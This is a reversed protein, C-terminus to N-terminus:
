QKIRKPEYVHCTGTYLENLAAIYLLSDIQSDKIRGRLRLFSGSNPDKGDHTIHAALMQYGFLQHDPEIKEVIKMPIPDFPTEKASNVSLSFDGTKDNFYLVSHSGNLGNPDSKLPTLNNDGRWKFANITNCEYETAMATSTHPLMLALVSSLIKKM